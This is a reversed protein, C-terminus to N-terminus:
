KDVDRAACCSLVNVDRKLGLRTNDVGLDELYLLICM